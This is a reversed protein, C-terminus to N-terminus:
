DLIEGVRLVGADLLETEQQATQAAPHGQCRVDAELTQGLSGRAFDLVELSPGSEVPDNGLM